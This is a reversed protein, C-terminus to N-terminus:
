RGVVTVRFVYGGVNTSNAIEDLESSVAGGTWFLKVNWSGSEVLPILAETAKFALQADLGEVVSLGFLSPTVTKGGTAYTGSLSITGRVQKQRGVVQIGGADPTFAYTVAM